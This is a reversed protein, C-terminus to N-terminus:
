EDFEIENEDVRLVKCKCVVFGYFVDLYIESYHLVYIMLVDLCIM